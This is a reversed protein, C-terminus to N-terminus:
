SPRHRIGDLNGAQMRTGAQMRCFTRTVCCKAVAADVLGESRVNVIADRKEIVFYM